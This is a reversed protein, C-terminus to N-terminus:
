WVSRSLSFSKTYASEFGSRVPLSHPPLSPVSTFFHVAISVFSASM